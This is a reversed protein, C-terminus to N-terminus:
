ADFGDVLIADDRRYRPVGALSGSEVLAGSATDFNWFRGYATISELMPANSAFRVYSRTDFRCLTETSPKLACIGAYRPVSALTGSGLSAQTALNFDYYRGYATITEVRTSNRTTVARTDFVCHAQDPSLACIPGYRPVSRLTGSATPAGTVDFDYYHDFATISEVAANGDGVFTRTDFTCLPHGDCIGEYRPIDATDLPGNEFLTWNAADYNWYRGYASISEILVGGLTVFTRTDFRCEPATVAAAWIQAMKGYGQANPHVGGAASASTMDTATLVAMDPLDRATCPYDKGSGLALRRSFEKRTAEFATNPQPPSVGFDWRRPVLAVLVRAHPVIREIKHQLGTVLDALPSAAAGNFINNTGVQLLVIDPHQAAVYGPYAPIGSHAPYGGACYDVQEAIWNGHGEHARDAAAMANGSHVSGVFAADIGAARLQTLLPGRYGGQVGHNYDEVMRRAFDGCFTPETSYHNYVYANQPEYYPEYCTAAPTNSDIGDACLGETISDGLPLIKTADVFSGALLAFTATIGLPLHVRLKM